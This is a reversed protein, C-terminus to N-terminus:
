ALCYMAEKCLLDKPVSKSSVQYQMATHQGTVRSGSDFKMNITDLCTGECSAVFPLIHGIHESFDNFIALVIEFIMLM